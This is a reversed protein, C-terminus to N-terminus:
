AIDNGDERRDAHRSRTGSDAESIAARRLKGAIACGALQTYTEGDRLMMVRM